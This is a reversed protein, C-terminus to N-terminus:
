MAPVCSRTADCLYYWKNCRSLGPITSLETLHGLQVHVNLQSICTCIGCPAKYVAPEPSGQEDPKTQVKEVHFDTAFFVKCFCVFHSGNNHEVMDGVQIPDNQRGNKGWRTNCFGTHGLHGKKPDEGPSQLEKEHPPFAGCILLIWVDETTIDGSCNSLPRCIGPAMRALLQPIATSRQM